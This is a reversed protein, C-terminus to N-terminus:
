FLSCLYVLRQPRPKLIRIRKRNGGRLDIVPLPHCVKTASRPWSFDELMGSRQFHEWQGANVYTNLARQLVELMSASDATQFLFGTKGEQVTDKLGGTAHVVPVCGYRMAIMQALGCPEYRSPMLLMDAGGYILRSLQADYRISARVREPYEIELARAANELTPDGSGLIVFQWAREHMQRLADITIDVGKQPDIRGIMALIPIRSEEKLGLQKQLATKNSGRGSLDEATFNAPLAKDTEPDWAAMDLGNLIGTISNSRDRLFGDLGCGFDPTLMERAYGPSVPVIADTSLLGLPLPQTRAWAPLVEDDPPILGYAVLVDTGDGGMYPLNHVTLMSRVNELEPDTRRSDCPMSRWPLIGTMPM